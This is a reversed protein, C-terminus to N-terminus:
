MFLKQEPRKWIACCFRGESSSQSPSFPAQTDRFLLGGNSIGVYKVRRRKPHTPYKTKIGKSTFELRERILPMEFSVAGATWEKERWKSM